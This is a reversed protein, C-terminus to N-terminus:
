VFKCPESNQIQISTQKRYMTVFKRLDHQRNSTLAVLRIYKLAYKTALQFWCNQVLHSILSSFYEVSAAFTSSSATSKQLHSVTADSRVDSRPIRWWCCSCCCTGQLSDAIATVSHSTRHLETTSLRVEVKLYTPFVEMASRSKERWIM